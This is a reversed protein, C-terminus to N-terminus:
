GSRRPLSSAPTGRRGVGCASVVPLLSWKTLLCGQVWALCEALVTILSGSHAFRERKRHLCVSHGSRASCELQSGGFRTIQARTQDVPRRDAQSGTRRDPVPRPSLNAGCDAKEGCPTGSPRWHSRTDPQQKAPPQHRAPPLPIHIVARATTATPM